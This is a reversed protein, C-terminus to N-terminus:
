KGEADEYAKVARSVTAYHVGFADVVAKMAHDGSLYALPLALSAVIWGAGVPGAM